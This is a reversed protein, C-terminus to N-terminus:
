FPPPQSLDVGEDLVATDAESAATSDCDLALSWLTYKVKKPLSADVALWRLAAGVRGLCALLEDINTNM